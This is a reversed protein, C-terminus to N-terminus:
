IVVGSVQDVLVVFVEWQKFVIDVLKGEIVLYKLFGFVGGYWEKFLNFEQGNVRGVEIFKELYVYSVVVVEQVYVFFGFFFQVDIGFLDYFVDLLDDIFLLFFKVLNKFFFDYGFEVVVVNVYDVVEVQIISLFFIYFGVEFVM